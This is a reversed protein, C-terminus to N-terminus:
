QKVFKSMAVPQGNQSRGVVTYIGTKFQSVDFNAADAGETQITAITQGLLNVIDLRAIKDLNKIFLEDSTPNPAIELATVSPATFMGITQCDTTGGVMKLDDFYYVQNTAPIADINWILTVRAFDANDPQASFDWELEEWEGIKTAAVTHDATGPAGTLSNELKMTVNVAAPMFVKMRMKKTSNTFRLPADLDTFMGGWPQSGGNDLGAETAKGVMASPNIGVPSPNAAVEFGQAPTLGGNEFFKWVTPSLGPSDYTAICGNYAARAWKLNDIHWDASPGNEGFNFFIVLKKYDGVAQASFDGIIKVWDTGTTFQKPTEFGGSTGGEIKFVIPLGAAPAKVLIEFQNYISLDLGAPFEVVLAAYPDDAPDTYKGSKTSQNIPQIAPNNVVALATAGGSYSYNRQCEYDDVINPIAVVGECPDITAPGQTLNDFFYMTLPAVTGIDFILRMSQWDTIAQHATFDFNLTEWQGPTKLNRTVEKNGTALSELQMTVKVSGAPAWVDLNFQPKASLDIFGPAVAAVTSFASSGKTYKGVKSSSNVGGPGPNDVVAFLGNLIMNGDLPEWPLFAGNEFDELTANTKEDWAIDDIHYVDGAVPDQGGNFFIAIKKHSAVSQSSFDVEFHTWSNAVTIDKWVEKAGSAGGELKFLIQCIKPSWIKCHLQNNVSLDMPNEYDIVLAAWPEGLPDIYKGVKKSPNDGNVAPNNVVTLSDWGNAYSANRNCEFDDIIKPEPTANKCDCSKPVARLDDFYYTGDTNTGPAFFIVITNLTTSAAKASVDFTYERWNGSTAINARKEIFDGGGELKFLIESTFPAHVKLVFQNNSSLDLPALLIARLATWQENINREFQGVQLSNNSTSSAPNAVPGTYISGLGEWALAAGSEFNEFEEGPLVGVIDDFYYTEGANTTFPNFAILIKDLAPYDVGCNLNFSMEVWENAVPITKFEEVAKGGGEIKFLVKHGAVPSWVKMKVQSYVALNIPPTPTTGLAFTFDSAPNNTVTGCSASPNIGTQSTNPVQGAWPDVSNILIWSFDSAAGEFDEHIIQASATAWSALALLFVLLHKKM